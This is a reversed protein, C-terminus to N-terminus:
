GEVNDRLSVTGATPSEKKLEEILKQIMQIGGTFQQVQNKHEVINQLGKNKLAEIPSEQLRVAHIVDVRARWQAVQLEHLQSELFALKQRPHLEIEKPISFEKVTAKDIALPSKM